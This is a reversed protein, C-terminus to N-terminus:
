FMYITDQDVMFDVGSLTYIRFTRMLLVSCELLAMYVIKSIGNPHVSRVDFFGEENALPHHSVDM